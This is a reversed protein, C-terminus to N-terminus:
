YGIHSGIVTHCHVKVVKLRVYSTVVLHCPLLMLIKIGVRSVLAGCFFVPGNGNRGHSVISACYISPDHTWQDAM